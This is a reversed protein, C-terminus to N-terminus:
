ARNGRRRFWGLGLLGGGLLLLSGPEPVKIVEKQFFTDSVSVLTSGANVSFNEDVTLASATLGHKEAAPGEAGNTDTLSFAGGPDGTVDKTLLSGGGPNDAGAFMDSIHFTPDLVSITYNLTWAGALDSNDFASIAMLYTSGIFSFHITASLLNEGETNLTWNKDGIDCGGDLAAWDRITSVDACDVAAAMAGGATLLVSGAIAAM